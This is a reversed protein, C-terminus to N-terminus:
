HARAASKFLSREFRQTTSQAKDESRPTKAPPSVEKRFQSVLQDWNARGGGESQSEAQATSQSQAQTAPPPDASAAGTAAVTTALATVLIATRLIHM